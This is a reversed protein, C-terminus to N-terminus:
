VSRKRRWSGLTVLDESSADLVRRGENCEKLTRVSHGMATTRTKWVQFVM